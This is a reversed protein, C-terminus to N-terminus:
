SAASAQGGLLNNEAPFRFDRSRLRSLAEECPTLRTLTWCDSSSWSSVEPPSCLPAPVADSLFSEGEFPASVSITGDLAVEPAEERRISVSSTCLARSSRSRLSVAAFVRRAGLSPRRAPATKVSRSSGARRAMPGRRLAYVKKSEQLVGNNDQHRKM